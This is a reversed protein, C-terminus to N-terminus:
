QRWTWPLTSLRLFAKGATTNPSPRTEREYALLREEVVELDDDPRQAPKGGDIDCIGPVKSSTGWINYIEGSLVCSWRGSLRRVLTERPVEFNVVLQEDFDRRRLLENLREAQRLTRPFGDLV